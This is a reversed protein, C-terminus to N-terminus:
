QESNENKEEHVETAKDIYLIGELHDLEHQFIHALFGSAGRTFKEGRENYARVTAKESRPVIGWKGRVSLCGEHKGTKRRSTKILEPNIYVEDEAPLGALAEDSIEDTEGAQATHAASLGRKAASRKKKIVAKGSIVFLRLSEGVQPAAIAVGYEEKALLAKMDSVLQQISPSLIHSLPIARAIERLVLDGNQVITRM